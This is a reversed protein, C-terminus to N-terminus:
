LVGMRACEAIWLADAEDDNKGWTGLGWQEVASSMMKPKGANGKGTAHKKITGVPIGVYPVGARECEAQLTGMLAGYVHGATPGAHRMVLEFAVIRPKCALLEPLANQFRVVRMGKGEHPTPKLNLVGSAQRKGRGDLIAWGCKTGLDFALYRDNGAKLRAGIQHPTM